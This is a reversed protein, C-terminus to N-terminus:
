DGHQDGGRKEVTEVLLALVAARDSIEKPIQLARWLNAVAIGGVFIGFGSGRLGFLLVAALSYIGLQVGLVMLGAREIHPSLPKKTFVGALAVSSGATIGILLILGFPHPFRGVTTSASVPNDYTALGLVGILLASFLITVEHPHRGRSSM